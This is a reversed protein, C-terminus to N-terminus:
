CALVEPPRPSRSPLTSPLARPELVPLEDPVPSRSPLTRPPRSPAPLRQGSRGERPENIQSRRGNRTQPGPPTRRRWGNNAASVFLSRESCHGNPDTARVPKHSPRLIEDGGFRTVACMAGLYAQIIGAVRILVRDGAQHGYGDNILKFRDIDALAISIPASPDTMTAAVLQDLYARNFLGTLPDRVVREALDERLSDVESIRRRLAVNAEHLARRDRMHDTVDSMTLIRGVVESGHTVASSRVDIERGNWVVVPEKAVDVLRVFRDIVKADVPGYLAVDAPSAGYLFARAAPNVHVQRERTDMVLVGEALLDLVRIKAMRLIDLVRHRLIAYCLMTVGVGFFAATTDPRNIDSALTIANGTLIIALAVVFLVMGIRRSTDALERFIAAVSVGIVLYCYISHVWFIPGFGPNAVSCSIVGHHLYNTAGAITVLIPEITLFALLGAGPWWNMDGLARSLVYLAPPLAAIAPLAFPLVVCSMAPYGDPGAVMWGVFVALTWWVMAIGLACVSWQTVPHLRRQHWGIVALVSCSVLSLLYGGM